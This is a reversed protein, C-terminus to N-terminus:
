YNVKVENEEINGCLGLLWSDPKFYKSSVRSIDAVTIKEIENMWEAVDRAKDPCFLEEFYHFDVWSNSTQLQRIKSKIIKDKALQLEGKTLKGSCMRKIEGVIIEIVKNLNDKSTASYVEFSGADSFGSNSVRISYVSGTDTRLKKFLSCSLGSGLITSIVDLAEQDKSYLPITRFGLAMHIQETETYKEIRISKRRISKLKEEKLVPIKGKNFNFAKEYSELVKEIGIGGSMVVTMKNPDLMDKYFEKLDKHEINKVSESTGAVPRGVPTGQFLLSDIVYFIYRSPNSRRDDIERLIVGRERNVQEKTFNSKQVLENVFTVSSLFDKPSAVEVVVSLMDLWTFANVRGGLKEIFKSVDNESEFNKTKKFMMHEAYHALGEKGVPDFRSGARFLAYTSVPMNPREFLVVKVGNKLRGVYKTVGFDKLTHM